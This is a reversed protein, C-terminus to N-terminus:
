LGPPMDAVTPHFIANALGPCFRGLVSPGLVLGAAIEGVVGPQGLLRFLVAFLRAAVIIVALQVLVPFLVEEVSVHRLSRIIEGVAENNDAFLIHCSSSM